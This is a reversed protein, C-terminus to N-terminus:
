GMVPLEGRLDELPLSADGEVRGSNWAGEEVLRIVHCWLAGLGRAQTPAARGTMLQQPIVLAQHGTKMTEWIVVSIRTTKSRMAKNKLQQQSHIPDHSFMTLVLFATNQTIRAWYRTSLSGPASTQSPLVPGQSPVQTGRTDSMGEEAELDM